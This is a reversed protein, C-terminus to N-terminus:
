FSVLGGELDLVRRTPVKQTPGVLIGGVLSRALTPGGKASAKGLLGLESASTYGASFQSKGLHSPSGGNSGSYRPGRGQGVGLGLGAKPKFFSVKKKAKFGRMPRPGKGEVGVKEKGKQAIV